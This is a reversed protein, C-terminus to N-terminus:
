FVKLTTRDGIAVGFDKGISFDKADKITLKFLTPYKGYNSTGWVYIEGSSTICGSHGGCFIKQVTVDDEFNVKIPVKAERYTDNGLQGEKNNGSAFIESNTTLFLTHYEGCKVDKINKIHAPVLCAENNSQGNGLQSFEGNGCM